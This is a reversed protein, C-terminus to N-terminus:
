ILRTWNKGNFELVDKAGVSWLVDETADIRGFTKPERNLDLAVPRIVEQSVSLEFLGNYSSLFVRGSLSAAGWFDIASYPHDITKWAGHNGIVITGTRGCAIVRGDDLQVGDTLISNVPSDETEWTEGDFRLITGRWGVAYVVRHDLGFVSELGPVGAVISSERLSSDIVKWDGGPFRCFAQCDMGVAFVLDGIARAGRLPGRAQDPETPMPIHEESRQGKTFRFVQGAEGIALMETTGARPVAIGIVNWPVMEIDGLSSGDWELLQAHPFDTGSGDLTLNLYGFNRHHPVGLNFSGLELLQDAM